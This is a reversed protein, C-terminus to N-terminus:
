VAAVDQGGGMLGPIIFAASKLGPNYLVETQVQIGALSVRSAGMKRARDAVAEGALRAVLGQAYGLATGATTPDSGDLVIQLAAQRGAAVQATFRPPIVLVMLAERSRVLRAIDANRTVGAVLQFTGAAAARRIIERSMETRDLDQVALPINELDFNLGYGYLILLLVPLGFIVVLSRVDRRNLLWEARAIALAHRLKV